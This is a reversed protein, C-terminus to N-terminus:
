ESRGSRKLTYFKTNKRRIIRRLQPLNSIDDINKAFETLSFKSQGEAAATFKIERSTVKIYGRPQESGVNKDGPAFHVTEQTGEAGRFNIDRDWKIAVNAALKKALHMLLPFINEEYLWITQLRLTRTPYVITLHFLHGM